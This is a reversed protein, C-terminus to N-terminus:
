HAEELIIFKDISSGNRRPRGTAFHHCQIRYEYQKTDCSFVSPQFIRIIVM